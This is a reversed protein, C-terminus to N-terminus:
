VRPPLWLCPAAVTRPGYSSPASRRRKGQRGSTLRLQARRCRAIKPPRSGCSFRWSGLLDAVSENRLRRVRRVARQSLLSPSSPSARPYGSHAPQWAAARRAPRPLPLGPPFKITTGSRYQSIKHRGLDHRATGAYCRPWDKRPTCPLARRGSLWGTFPLATTKEIVVNEDREVFFQGGWGGSEGNKWRWVMRG